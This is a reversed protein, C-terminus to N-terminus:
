RPETLPWARVIRHQGRGLLSHVLAFGRVTWVVPEVAQTEIGAAYFLTVHPTFRREVHRGLGAAVLREGLLRQLDLLPANAGEAARLICPRSRSRGAFSGIRDFRVDFSAARVQAAAEGAAAVLPEPLEPHDGLHHLTVHLREAPIPSGRLGRSARVPQALEFIGQATEADPYAAFFLRASPAQPAIGDLRM